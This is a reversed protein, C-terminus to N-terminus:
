ALSRLTNFHVTSLLQDLDVPKRFIGVINSRRSYLRYPIAEYCCGTVILIPINRTQPSDQLREVVEYGQLRPLMLDLLILDPKVEKALELASFGDAALSLEYQDQHDLADHLLRSMNGDDEVILVKKKKTEVNELVEM